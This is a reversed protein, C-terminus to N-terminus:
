FTISTAQFPMFYGELPLRRVKSNDLAANVGGSKAMEERKKIRITARSAERLEFIRRQTGDLRSFQHSIGDFEM